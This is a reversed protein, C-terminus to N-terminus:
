QPEKVIQRYAALSEGDYHLEVPKLHADLITEPDVRGEHFSRLWEPSVLDPEPSRLWDLM